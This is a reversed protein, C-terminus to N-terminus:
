AATADAAPAPRRARLNGFARWLVLGLTFAIGLAPVGLMGVQIAELAATVASGSAIADSTATLHLQFSAWATAITGPASIAVLVITGLLVPVITAVYALMARRARATLALAAPGRRRGPIASRVVLRIHSFADPVGALDSVVYYGDLRLWPILQELIILHQIFVVVLLSEFGTGLYVAATGIIFIANFYVGGLDTRLRGGRGLRYADTVDTYFVPAVIYIGAGMAGPQAGGYSCGAAHGCEHFAASVLVLAAAVLFLAPTLLMEEVGQWLGHFAFLWVDFAALAALAAIVVAPTFLPHLARALGRVVRPPLVAMRFRLGLLPSAREPVPPAGELAIIGAPGLKEDVLFRVNGASVGRGLERGVRQAIEDLSRQGDTSEAVLYLLRSIQIVQGDGRRLLYPPEVFGSDPYEGILEVGAALRPPPTM